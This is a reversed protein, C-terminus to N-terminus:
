TSRGGNCARNPSVTHFPPTAADLSARFERRSAVGEDWDFRTPREGQTKVCLAVLRRYSVPVDAEQLDAHHFRDRFGDSPRTPLREGRM